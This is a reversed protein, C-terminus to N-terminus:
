EPIPITSSETVTLGVVYDLPNITVGDLAEPRVGFSTVTLEDVTLEVTGDPPVDLTVDRVNLATQVTLLVTAAGAIVCQVDIPCRNDQIVGNFRVLAIAQSTVVGGTEGVRLTFQQGVNVFFEADPLEPGSQSTCATLILVLFLAALSRIV